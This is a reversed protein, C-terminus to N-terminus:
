FYVDLEWIGHRHLVYHIMYYTYNGEKLALM